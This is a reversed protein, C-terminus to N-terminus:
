PSQMSEETIRKILVTTRAVISADDSYTTSFNKLGICSSKFLESFQKLCWQSRTDEKSKLQECMNFSRNMIESVHQLTTLRSDGNKWRNIRSGTWSFIGLLGGGTSEREIALKGNRLCLKNNEKLMSIIQLETFLDDIALLDM